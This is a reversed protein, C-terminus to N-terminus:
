PQFYPKGQTKLVEQETWFVYSALTNKESAATGVGISDVYYNPNYNKPEQWSVTPIRM